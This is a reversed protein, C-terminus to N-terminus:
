RKPAFPELPTGIWWRPGFKQVLYADLKELMDAVWRLGKEILYLVTDTFGLISAAAALLPSGDPNQLTKKPWDYQAPSLQARHDNVPASITVPSNAEGAYHHRDNTSMGADRRQCAYCIVPNTHPVLAEPRAEGCACRANPPLRKAAIVKRRYAGSPDRQPLKSSM